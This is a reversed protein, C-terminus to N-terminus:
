GDSRAGGRLASWLRLAVALLVLCVALAAPVLWWIEYYPEALMWVTGWKIIVFLAALCLFPGYPIVNDRNVVWQAIGVVLGALPALFFVIPGAQWGLFSGIMALLTVDGFGMAERRMAWGAAIRVGWILGGGAALGVLSSLLGLWHEGGRSWVAAIGATGLGTLFLIVRNLPDRSLRVSWLALAHRWGRRTRAVWPLLAACWALYCALGGILSNISPQAIRAQPWAHPSVLTLFEVLPAGGADGVLVPLLTQPWLAALALGVLTGPITIVDPITQEDIDVLSAVLMAFILAFHGVFAAQLMAIDSAAPVFGVPAGARILQWEAVEWHYLWAIFAGLALEVLLPRWGVPGWAVPKQSRLQWAGVIPLWFLGRRTKEHEVAAREAPWGTLQPVRQVRVLWWAAWVAARGAAAGVVFLIFFQLAAPM